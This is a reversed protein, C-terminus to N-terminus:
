HNHWMIINNFMLEIIFGNSKKSAVVNSRITILDLDVYEWIFRNILVMTQHRPPQQICSPHRVRRHVASTPCHGMARGIHDRRRCLRDIAASSRRRGAAAHGLVPRLHEDRFDREKSVIWEISNLYSDHSKVISIRRYLIFSIISNIDM